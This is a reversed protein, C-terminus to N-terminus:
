AQDASTAWRAMMTNSPLSPDLLKRAQEVGTVAPVLAPDLLGAQVLVSAQDWYIHENFLKDGQPQLTDLHVRMWGFFLGRERPNSVTRPSEFLPKTFFPNDLIGSLIVTPYEDDNSNNNTDAAAPVLTTATNWM